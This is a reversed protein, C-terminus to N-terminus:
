FTTMQKCHASNKDIIKWTLLKEIDHCNANQIILCTPVDKYM